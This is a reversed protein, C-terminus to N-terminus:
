SIGVSLIEVHKRFGNGSLSIVDDAFTQREPLFDMPSPMVNGVSSSGRDSSSLHRPPGRGDRGSAEASPLCSMFSFLLFLVFGNWTLETTVIPLPIQHGPIGPSAPPVGPSSFPGMRFLSFHHPFSDRGRSASSKGMM